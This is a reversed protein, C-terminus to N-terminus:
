LAIGQRELLELTRKDQQGNYYKNLVKLFLENDPTAHAFLTMCSCLKKSDISGFIQVPDSIDLALLSESIERLNHNLSPEALYAQAEELNEIGYFVATSSYGLGRLQPFIYWMWHTLKRGRRVESLAQPYDTQQAQCFRTLDYSM